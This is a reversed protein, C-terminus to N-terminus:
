PAGNQNMLDIADTLWQAMNPFSGQWTNDGWSLLVEEGEGITRITLTGTPLEYAFFLSIEGAMPAPAEVQNGSFLSQFSRSFERGEALALLRDFGEEGRRVTLAHSPSDQESGLYIAFSATVSTCQSLEAGQALKGLPVPNTYVMSLIVVIIIVVPLVAKLAKKM